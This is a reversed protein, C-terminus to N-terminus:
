YLTNSKAINIFKPIVQLNNEVHFGSVTKGRLPIIHDVEFGKFIRCFQYLGQIEARHAHSFSVGNVCVPVTALVKCAGCSPEINSVETQM